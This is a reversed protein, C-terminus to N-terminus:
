RGSSITSLSLVERMLDAQRSMGRKTYIQRLHWYVTVEKCGMEAAVDRVTRGQALRVAVVSEKPTLDLVEAVLGPDIQPRDGPDVLLVLAAVRRGGFDTERVSLPMVHVVLPPLGSSRPLTMSGGTAARASFTPLALALLRKLRANDPPLWASLIGDRDQVGNGSRLLSGAHDNAEVIRGSRDLHIVGIRTNDLLQNLSAGLAYASALAQRLSVFHRVHPLLREIMGLDADGWGTPKVPDAFAWVIRLGERGDLRVNLGNQSAIRPLGENYVPSTKREAESYLESVHVLQSDPLRRLRPVREDHPHYVEFYEREVDERRQGRFYFRAFHVRADNEFGEGVILGNAAAGCADDILAATHAWHSDNLTARHLSALIRDFTDSRSM